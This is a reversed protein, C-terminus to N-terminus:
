FRYNVGISFHPVLVFTDIKAVLGNVGLEFFIPVDEIANPSTEYGVLATWIWTAPYDPNQSTDVWPIIARIGAGAYYNDQAPTHYRYLVESSFVSAHAIIVSFIGYRARLGLSHEPALRMDLGAGLHLSPLPIPLPLFMAGTAQIAIYPQWRVQFNEQMFDGEDVINTPNDQVSEQALVLVGVNLVLLSGILLLSKMVASYRM